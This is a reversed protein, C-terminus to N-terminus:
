FVVESELAVVPFDASPNIQRATWDVIYNGVRLVWHNRFRKFDVHYQGEIGAVELVDYISEGDEDKVCVPLGAEQCVEAFECSATFCCDEAGEPTGYEPHSQRFSQIVDDLDAAKM